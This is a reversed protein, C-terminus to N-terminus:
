YYRHNEIWEWADKPLWGQLEASPAVQVVLIFDTDRLHQALRSYLVDANESSAAVLWTNDLYHMWADSKEFESELARNTRRPNLSYSVLFIM